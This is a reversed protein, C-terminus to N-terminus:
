QNYNGYVESNLCRPRALQKNKDRSKIISDFEKAIYTRNIDHQKVLEKYGIAWLSSILKDKLSVLEEESLLEASNHLTDIAKQIM